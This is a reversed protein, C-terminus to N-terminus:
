KLAQNLALLCKLEQSFQKKLDNQQSPLRSCHPSFKQGQAIEMATQFYYQAVQEFTKAAAVEGEASALAANKLNDAACVANSVASPFTSGGNTTTQAAQEYVRAMKVQGQSRAHAADKLLVAADDLYRAADSFNEVETSDGYIATQAAQFHYRAAQEYTKAVEVKGKNRTQAAQNLTKTASHAKDAANQFNWSEQARGRNNAAVAQARYEKELAYCELSFGAIRFLYATTDEMIKMAQSLAVLRYLESPMTSALVDVRQYRLNKEAPIPCESWEEVARKWVINKQALEPYPLQPHLTM